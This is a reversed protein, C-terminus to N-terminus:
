EDNMSNYLEAEELKRSLSRDEDVDRRKRRKREKGLSTQGAVHFEPHAKLWEKDDESLQKQM